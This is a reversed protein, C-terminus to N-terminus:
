IVDFEIYVDRSYIVASHVLWGHLSMTLVPTVIM